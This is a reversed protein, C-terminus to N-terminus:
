QVRIFLEKRALEATLAREKDERWEEFRSEVEVSTEGNNFYDRFPRQVIRMVNSQKVDRQLLGERRTQDALREEHRRFKLALAAEDAERVVREQNVSRQYKEREMQTATLNRFFLTREDACKSDLSGVLSDLTNAQREAQDLQKLKPRFQQLRFCTPGVRRSVEEAKRQEGALTTDLVRRQYKERLSQEIEEFLKKQRKADDAIKEAASQKLHELEHQLALMREEKDQERKDRDRALELRDREKRRRREAEEITRRERLSLEKSEASATADEERKAADRELRIVNENRRREIDSRSLETSRARVYDRTSTAMPGGGHRAIDYLSLQADKMLYEVTSEKDVREEEANEEAAQEALRMLIRPVDLGVNSLPPLFRLITYGRRRAEDDDLMNKPTGNNVIMNVIMMLQSSSKKSSQLLQTVNADATIQGAAKPSSYVSSSRSMIDNMTRTKKSPKYVVLLTCPISYKPHQRVVVGPGCRWSSATEQAERIQETHPSATSRVGHGSSSPLSGDPLALFLVYDELFRSPLVTEYFTQEEFRVIHRILEDTQKEKKLQWSSKRRSDGRSSSGKADVAGASFLENRLEETARANYESELNNLVEQLRGKWTDTYHARLTQNICDETTSAESLRLLVPFEPAVVTSRADGDSFLNQRRRSTENKAADFNMFAQAIFTTEPGSKKTRPTAAPM